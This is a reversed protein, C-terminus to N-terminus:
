AYNTFVKYQRHIRLNQLLHKKWLEQKSKAVNDVQQRWEECKLCFVLEEKPHGSFAFSPSQIIADVLTIGCSPNTNNSCRCILSNKQSLSKHNKWVLIPFNKSLHTKWTHFKGFKKNWLIPFFINLFKLWFLFNFFVRRYVHDMVEDLVSLHVHDMVEDLLSTFMELHSGWEQNYVLQSGWGMGWGGGQGWVVGLILRLEVGLCARSCGGFYFFLFVLFDL